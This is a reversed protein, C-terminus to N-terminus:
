RCRNMSIMIPARYMKDSAKCPLRVIISAKDNISDGAITAKIAM